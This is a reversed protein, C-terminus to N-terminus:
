GDAPDRSFVPETPCWPRGRRCMGSVKAVSLFHDAVAAGTSVTYIQRTTAGFALDGVTRTISVTTIERGLEAHFVVLDGSSCAVFIRDKQGGMGVGLASAGRMIPSKEVARRKALGVTIVQNKIPNLAFPTLNSKELGMTSVRGDDIRIDGVRDLTITDVISIL